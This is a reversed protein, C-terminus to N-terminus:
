FIIFPYKYYKSIFRVFSHYDSEVQFDHSSTCSLLYGTLKKTFTDVDGEVLSKLFSTYDLFGIKEEIWESFVGTYLRMIENNPISLQCIQTSRTQALESHEVKLYGCFLLLTWLAHSSGVLDEYRLSTDIRGEITKGQMLDSLQAKISDNSNLLIEKLLKDNSTLVWYPALVNTDLYNM